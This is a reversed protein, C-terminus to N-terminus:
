YVITNRNIITKAAGTTSLGALPRHQTFFQKFDASVYTNMLKLTRNWNGGDPGNPGWLELLAAAVRGEVWDGKGWGGVVRQDLLDYSDGTSFTYRSDGLAYAAVANAFGETWGCAASAGRDLSHGNCDRVPPWQKDHLQWQFWHGAEHLILHKSDPDDAKLVVWDTGDSTDGPFSPHDWYGGSSGDQRWAVTLQDCASTQHATWCLSGTGRKGYLQNLTDTIKWAQQMAKPVKVTGLDTTAAPTNRTATTFTYQTTNKWNPDGQKATGAGVVRWLTGASSFFRVHVDRPAATGTHCASFRGDTAGTLGSSLREVQGSATRRGWLEWNSNRARETVLPKRTGAEADNHDFALTGNLCTTSAAAATGATLPTALAIGAGVALAAALVRRRTTPAATPGAAPASPAHSRTPM